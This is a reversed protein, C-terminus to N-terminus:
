AEMSERVEKLFIWIFIFCFACAAAAFLCPLLYPYEEWFWNGFLIPFREHPRSLLGGM